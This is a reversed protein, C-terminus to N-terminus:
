LGSSFLRRRERASEGLLIVDAAVAIFHYGREILRQAEDPRTCITGMIKGSDRAAQEVSAVASKFEESEFDSPTGLNTSLDRPGVFLVDLGEIAAIDVINEVAEGTEVQIIALIDRNAREFYEKFSTGFGSARTTGAVGRIGEPPYRVSRVAIVADELTSVLPIVVGATGLDLVRKVLSPECAAVRVIPTVGHRELAVIQSLLVSFDGSGHELDVLAWDYGSMGIIEAGTASGLSLWCGIATEGARLKSKLEGLV